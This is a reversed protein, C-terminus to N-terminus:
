ETRDRYIRCSEGFTIMAQIAVVLGTVENSGWGYAGGLIDIASTITLVM